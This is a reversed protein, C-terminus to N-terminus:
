PDFHFGLTPLVQVGLFGDSVRTTEPTITYGPMAGADVDIAPIYLILVRVGVDMMFGRAFRVGFRLEPALFPRVWGHASDGLYLKGSSASGATFEQGGDVYEEGVTSSGLAIGASLRLTLPTSEFVHLAASVGLLLGSINVRENHDLNEYTTGTASSLRLPRKIPEGGTFVAGLIEVGFNPALLYGVRVGVHGSATSGGQNSGGSPLVHKQVGFAGVPLFGLEFAFSYRRWRDLDIAIAQPQEPSLLAVERSAEVYGDASAVVLHKGKALAGRFPAKGSPKGDITIMADSPTTDVALAIPLAVNELSLDITKGAEATIAQKASGTEDPGHLGITHTGPVVIGKWPTKGVVAGDLVVDVSKGNKEVVSLTAAAVGSEVPAKKLELTVTPKSGSVISLKQTADPFGEKKARFTREGVDVRAEAISGKGLPRDDVFVEADPEKVTVSVVVTLPMLTEIEEQLKTRAEAELDKADALEQQLLAIAVAYRGLFKDCVAINRLVRPEKSLDYSAQFEVLAGDYKKDDFLLLAADFHTRAEPPLREALTKPKVPAPKPPGKATPPAASAPPVGALLLVCATFTSLATKGRRTLMDADDGSYRARGVSFVVDLL